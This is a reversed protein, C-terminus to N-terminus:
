TVDIWRSSFVKLIARRKEVSEKDKGEDDRVEHLRKQNTTIWTIIVDYDVHYQALNQLDEGGSEVSFFYCLCQTM